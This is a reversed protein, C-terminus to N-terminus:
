KLRYAIIGGSPNNQAGYPVFLMGDAIVTGGNMSAHHPSTLGLGLVQNLDETQDHYLTAGTNANMAFLEGSTTTVYVVGNAVSVHRMAAGAKLLVYDSGDAFNWVSRGTGADLAYVKVQMGLDPRNPTTTNEVDAWFQPSFTAFFANFYKSNPPDNFNLDSFADYVGEFGAVYVINNQYAAGAQIGGLGTRKSIQREWITKGTQRDVARFLGGKSGDAVVDRASGSADIARYLVPPALVDADRAVPDNPGDPVPANPDFVDDSHFQNNWIFKGTAVNIAYLSDGRDVYGVPALSKDPYGTYPPDNNQGTGGFIWGRKLDVALGSGPSVGHGYYSGTQPNIDITTTRWFLTVKRPFTIDLASIAGVDQSPAGLTDAIIDTQESIFLMRCRPRCLSRNAALTGNTRMYVIVPEGVNSALPLDPPIVYPQVGSKAPDFDFEKGGLLRVAHVRGNASGRIWVMDDTVVPASYYLEPVYPKTRATFDPDVLTTSWHRLPDTITGTEADRAFMTGLQDIYYITGDVVLPPSIVGVVSAPLYLNVATELVFGTPPPGPRWKSDNFTQWARKLNPVTQPSLHVEFPNSNSNAYNFSYKSWTGSKLTPTPTVCVGNQLVQPFNCTPTSSSVTVNLTSYSLSQDDLVGNMNTDVGFYVQYSGEAMNSANLIEFPTLAFLSGQYTVSIKSIDTGINIWGTPHVWSYWYGSPTKAVVWWDANSGLLSSPDMDVKISLVGNPNLTVQNALDNGKINLVPNTGGAAMVTFSVALSALFLKKMITNM